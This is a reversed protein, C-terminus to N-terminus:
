ENDRKWSILDGVNIDRELTLGGRVELVFQAPKDSSFQSEAYPQTDRHITVIENNANIFMMDLALPTNAMWFSLPQEREFVFIMGISDELSHVDMLGTNRETEEDAVAIRLNLKEEGNKSTVSLSAEPVVVRSGSPVTAPKTKEETKQCGLSFSLILLFVFLRFEPM